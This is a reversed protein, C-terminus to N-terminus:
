QQELPVNDKLGKPSYAQMPQQLRMAEQEETDMADGGAEQMSMALAQKLLADEDDMASSGGGAAAATGAATDVQMTSDDGKSEGAGADAAAKSAAEQRAREEEMSVRLAMALEPDMSADIGGFEGGGGGAGGFGGAGAAGGFDGGGEGGLSSILVDSPLIGAPITILHSNDGSSAADIFEQLKEASERFCSQCMAPYQQLSDYASQNDDIEGMSVVDVAVNNKKLLKGVQSSGPTDDCQTTKVLSKVDDTIPSAVFLVLRQGGHKNRRHKLALQAIQIAAALNTSGGIKVDHLSNLIKGMDDTPSVLLEPGKGAMTLVGVTSEPNSQTKTGCVLNAADHQAELRTPIYDGNRMWDSNDLCLMTSELPM